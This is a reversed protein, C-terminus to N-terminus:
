NNRHPCDKLSIDFQFLHAKTKSSVYIYSTNVGAILFKSSSQCIGQTVARKMRSRDEDRVTQDSKSGTNIEFTYLLTTGVGKVSVLTTYKDVVQPLTQSISASALQIIEKSQSKMEKDPFEDTRLKLDQAFSSSILSLLLIIISINKKM